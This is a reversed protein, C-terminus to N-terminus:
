SKLITNYFNMYFILRKLIVWLSTMTLHLLCFIKFHQMCYTAPFFLTNLSLCQVVVSLCSFHTEFIDHNEIDNPFATGHCIFFIDQLDRYTLELGAYKQANRSDKSSGQCRVTRKNDRWEVYVSFQSGQNNTLTIPLSKLTISLLRKQSSMM